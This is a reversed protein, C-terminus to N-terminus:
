AESEGYSGVAVDTENGWTGSSRQFAEVLFDADDVRSPDLDSNAPEGDNVSSEGMTVTQIKQLVFDVSNPPDAPIDFGRNLTDQQHCNRENPKSSSSLIHLDVADLSEMLRLSSIEGEMDSIPFTDEPKATSDSFQTRGSTSEIWSEVEVLQEDTPEYEENENRSNSNPSDSCEEMSISTQPSALNTAVLTGSLDKREALEGNLQPLRSLGQSSGAEVV